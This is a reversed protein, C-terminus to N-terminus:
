TSYRYFSLSTAIIFLILAAIQILFIISKGKVETLGLLANNKTILNKVDTDVESSTSAQTRVEKLRAEVEELQNYADKFNQRWKLVEDKLESNDNLSIGEENTISEVTKMQICIAITLVLCISGLTIAIKKM